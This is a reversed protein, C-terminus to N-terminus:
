YWYLYICNTSFVLFLIFWLIYIPRTPFIDIDFTTQRGTTWPLCCGDEVQFATPPKPKQNPTPCGLQCRGPVRKRWHSAAAQVSRRAWLMKGVEFGTPRVWGFGGRRWFGDAWVRRGPVASHTHGARSVIFYWSSQDREGSVLGAAVSGLLNESEV